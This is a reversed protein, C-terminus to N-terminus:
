SRGVVAAAILMTFLILYIVVTIAVRSGTQAYPDPNRTVNSLMLLGIAVTICTWASRAWVRRTLITFIVTAACCVALLNWVVTQLLVSSSAAFYCAICVAAFALWANRIRAQAM